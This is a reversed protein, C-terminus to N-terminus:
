RVLSSAIDSLWLTVPDATMVWAGAQEVITGQALREIRDSYAGAGLEAHLFGKFILITLFIICLGRLTGMRKKRRPKAVVLNDGTVETRYGQSLRTHRRSIRRMRREFEEYQYASM